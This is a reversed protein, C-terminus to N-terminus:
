KHPVDRLVRVDLWVFEFFDVLNKLKRCVRWESDFIGVGLYERLM